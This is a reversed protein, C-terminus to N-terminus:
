QVPKDAPQHCWLHYTFLEFIANTLEKLYILLYFTGLEILGTFVQTCDSNSACM